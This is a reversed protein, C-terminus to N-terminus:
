ASGEPIVGYFVEGRNVRGNANFGLLELARDRRGNIDRDYIIGLEQHEADWVTRIVTFQLATILQLAQEWYARVAPIGVVTPRGVTDMAKPTSFVVSEDFHSLVADLNRANWAAAWQAAFHGPEFPVM